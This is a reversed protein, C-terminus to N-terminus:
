ADGTLILEGEDYAAGIIYWVGLPVSYRPWKLKAFHAKVNKGACVGELAAAGLCIGTSILAAFTASMSAGANDSLV